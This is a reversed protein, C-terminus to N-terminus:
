RSEKTRRLYSLVWWTVATTTVALTWIALGNLSFSALPLGCDTLCPGTQLSMGARRDDEDLSAVTRVSIWYALNLSAQFSVVGLVVLAISRRAWGPIRTRRGTDIQDLGEATPQQDPSDAVSWARGAALQHAWAKAQQSDAVEIDHVETSTVQNSADLGHLTIRM